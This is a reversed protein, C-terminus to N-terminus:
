PTKVVNYHLIASKGSTLTLHYTGAPFGSFDVTTGDLACPIQRGDSRTCLVQWAGKEGIVDGLCVKGSTPNPYIVGIPRSPTQGSGMVGVTVTVTATDTCGLAANTIAVTYQATSVPTLQPNQASSSFGAPVSSWAYTYQPNNETVSVASSYLTVPTGGTVQTASASASAVPGRVFCKDYRYAKSVKGGPNFRWLIEGIRNVEILSDVFTICVLSNGNPLQQSSGENTTTSNATYLWSYSAPGYATGPVGQYTYGDYPPAIVDVASKGGAGGVNNFVSLYNPFYQNDASIWHADHAVNIFATGSAQYAAPNGWRYLIDGGRGSNGGDHGAAQATTTSHDIVFIESFTFSSFTIQDLAANYDIGNAHCFDKSNDYNMDLLQPNNVISAVYNSKAADYHQCMHDWLHWEWVITGSTPGTPRVEIIKDVNRSQVTSAGAQAVEAASKVEMAIMLVNGNPMPCIDHHIINTSDSYVFDWVVNGNWDVKQVEGTTPGNHLIAGPYSVTRVLTDGAILYSSFGTKANAPLNWTKYVVNSTDILFAKSTGKVSYLTYLGWQQAYACPAALLVLMVLLKKM